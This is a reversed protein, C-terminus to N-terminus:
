LQIYLLLHEPLLMFTYCGTYIKVSAGVLRDVLRCVLLWDVLRGVSPRSPEFPFYCKLPAM